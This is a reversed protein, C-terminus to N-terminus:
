PKPQKESPIFALPKPSMIVFPQIIVAHFYCIHKPTGLAEGEIRNEANSWLEIESADPKRLADSDIWAQIIRTQDQAIAAAVENLDFAFVWLAGRRHHPALDSWYVSLIQTETSEEAM